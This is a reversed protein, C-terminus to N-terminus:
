VPSRLWPGSQPFGFGPETTARVSTTLMLAGNWVIQKIDTSELALNWHIPSNRYGPTFHINPYFPCSLYKPGNPYVEALLFLWMM